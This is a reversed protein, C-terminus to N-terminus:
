VAEGYTRIVREGDVRYSPLRGDPEGETELPLWSYGETEVPAPWFTTIASGCLHRINLPMNPSVLEGDCVLAFEQEAAPSPFLGAEELDRAIAMRMWTTPKIGDRQAAANIAERWGAHVPLKMTHVYNAM